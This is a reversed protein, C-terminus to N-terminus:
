SSSAATSHSALVVIVERVQASTAIPTAHHPMQREARHERAERLSVTQERDLL